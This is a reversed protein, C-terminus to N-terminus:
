RTIQARIESVRLQSVAEAPSQHQRPQIQSRHRVDLFKQLHVIDRDDDAVDGSEVGHIPYPPISCIVYKGPFLKNEGFEVKRLTDADCFDLKKGLVTARANSDLGMRLNVTRKRVVAM